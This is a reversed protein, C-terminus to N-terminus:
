KCKLKPIDYYGVAINSKVKKFISKNDKCFYVALEKRTDDVEVNFSFFNEDTDDLLVGYKKLLNISKQVDFDKSKWGQIFLSNKVEICEPIKEIEDESALVKFNTENIGIYVIDKELLLSDIRHVKGKKFLNTKLFENIAKEKFTINDKDQWAKNVACATIILTLFILNFFKSTKMKFFNADTILLIQEIYREQRIAM